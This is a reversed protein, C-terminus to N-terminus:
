SVRVAIWPPLSPGSYFVSLLFLLVHKFPFCGPCIQSSIVMQKLLHHMTPFPTLSLSTLLQHLPPSPLLYTSRVTNRPSKPGRVQGWPNMGLNQLVLHRLCFGFCSNESFVTHSVSACVVGRLAWTVFYSEFYLATSEGRLGLVCPSEAWSLQPPIHCWDASAQPCRCASSQCFILLLIALGSASRSVLSVLPAARALSCSFSRLSEIFYSDWPRHEPSSCLGIFNSNQWHIQGWIYWM